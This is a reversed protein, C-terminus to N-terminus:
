NSNDMEINVVPYVRVLLVWTSQLSWVNQEVPVLGRKHGLFKRGPPKKFNTYINM